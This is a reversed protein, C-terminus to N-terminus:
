IIISSKEERCETNAFVLASQFVRKLIIEWVDRPANCLVTTLILMATEIQDVESMKDVLKKVTEIDENETGEEM